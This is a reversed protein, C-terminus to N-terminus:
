ARCRGPSPRRYAGLILEGRFGSEGVVSAVMGDYAAVVEKARAVLAHGVPTLEPTRRAWDFLVIGWESELAKM